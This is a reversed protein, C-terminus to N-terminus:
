VGWSYPTKGAGISRLMGGTPRKPTGLSRPALTLLAEGIAVEAMESHRAADEHYGLSNLVRAAVRSLLAPYLGLPLPVVFTYDTLCIYDGVGPSGQVVGLIEVEPGIYNLDGAIMLQAGDGAVSIVDVTLPPSTIPLAGGTCTVTVGGSGVGEVTAVTTYKLTDKTLQGPSAYYYVRVTANTGFPLLTIGSADFCFGTPTGAAAPGSSEMPLQPLTYWGSGNSIQVHRVAGAVARTPMRVRGNVSAVDVRRVMYEENVRRLMPVLRSAIEMDAHRLLSADDLGTATPLMGLSKLDTLLQTATVPM